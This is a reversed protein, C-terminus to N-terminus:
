VAVPLGPCFSHEPNKEVSGCHVFKFDFVPRLDVPRETGSLDCDGSLHNRGLAVWQNPNIPNM